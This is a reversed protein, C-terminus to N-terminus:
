PSLNPKKLFYDAESEFLIMVSGFSKKKPKDKPQYLYLPFNVNGGRYFLNFDEIYNSCFVINWPKELGVVQGARGVCLGLNDKLMHRMVERRSREIVVDHYFIWQIDFPRYLSRM